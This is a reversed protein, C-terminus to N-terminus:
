PAGVSNSTRKASITVFATGDISCTRSTLEPVSAIILAMSDGASERLPVADQLEFTTIMSM